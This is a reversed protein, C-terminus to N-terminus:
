FFFELENFLNNNFYEASKKLDQLEFMDNSYAWGLNIYAEIFGKEAAEKLYYISQNEIYKLSEKSIELNEIFSNQSTGELRSVWKSPIEIINVKMLLPKLITELLFPHKLEQWKIKKVLKAPFIRYGYTM